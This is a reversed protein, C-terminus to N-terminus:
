GRDKLANRLCKAGLATILLRLKSFLGVHDVHITELERLAVDILWLRDRM